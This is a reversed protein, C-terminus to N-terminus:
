TLIAVPSPSFPLRNIGPLPLIKRKDMDNLRVKLSVWGGIWHTDRTLHGFCWASWEGGDLVSTLFSPAIGGNGWM